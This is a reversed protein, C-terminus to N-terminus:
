TLKKVLILITITNGRNNWSSHWATYRKAIKTDGRHCSGTSNFCAQGGFQAAKTGVTRENWRSNKEVYLCFCIFNSSITCRISIRWWFYFKNLLIDQQSVNFFFYAYKNSQIRRWSFCFGDFLQLPRIPAQASFIPWSIIVNLNRLTDLITQTAEWWMTSLRLFTIQRKLGPAISMSLRKIYEIRKWNAM